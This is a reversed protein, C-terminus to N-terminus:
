LRESISKAQMFLQLYDPGGAKSDTGSMNFGGFPHVGVLAGTCHRNIYLNGVHFKEKAREIHERKMSYLSGTLGYITNNAIALAENFDAARIFSLVPGFIEEQALRADPKVNAYITPKIFYGQADDYEGGTVLRGEDGCERIYSTIKAFAAADIVAGVAYNEAAPGITLKNTLEVVRELVQEYVADVIIARSCASCKQGQFGFASRVIGQAAAELDATEDVIIGDKGGMEAVVRKIWIQGPQTIAAQQNIRLGVAMSGTFNIFRTRPHTVLYEGIESGSGPLYNVVGPPLNISQMLEFVKAGIVAATNAPKIIVTNGAAIAAATMGMLIAFPFNWPSIVLGAGLPIYVYSNREGALPTPSKGYSLEIAQRGYYECFDIAEAVDADAEVWNKGVELILWATLEAKRRRIAAALKFLYDARVQMPLRSWSAFAQWATELALEAHEPSAQSVQGIIERHNCPNLSAFTRESIIAKEGIRLPYTQGLQSKVQALATEMVKRNEAVSFDTLPENRFTILKDVEESSLRYIKKIEVCM